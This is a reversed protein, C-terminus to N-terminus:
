SKCTIFSSTWLFDLWRGDQVYNLELWNKNHGWHGDNKKFNTDQRKGKQKLFLNLLVQFNVYFMPVEAKHWNCTKYGLNEIEM